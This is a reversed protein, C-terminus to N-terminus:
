LSFNSVDLSYFIIYKLIYRAGMYLNINKYFHLKSCDSQQEGLKLM